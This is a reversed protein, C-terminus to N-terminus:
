GSENGKPPVVGEGAWKKEKLWTSANPISRKEKIWAETKRQKLLSKIIQEVVDWSPALNDWVRIADEKGAKKPYLEWFANFKEDQKTRAGSKGPIQGTSEETVPEMLRKNMYDRKYYRPPHLYVKYKWSEDTRDILFHKVLDEIADSYSRRTIGAFECLKGPEAECFDFERFKYDEWRLELDVEEGKEEELAGWYEYYDNYGFYRMVPYLAQATPKLHAWNGKLLIDRHFPFVKGKEYQPIKCTFRKTSRGRKSTYTEFRTGPFDKLGQVGSRVVKESRGCLTSITKEGPFSEGNRNCYSRIIPYIAKSAKPLMAWNMNIFLHKEFWFFQKSKFENTFHFM